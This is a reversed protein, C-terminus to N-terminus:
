ELVDISDETSFRLECSHIARGCDDLHTNFPQLRISAESGTTLLEQHVGIGHHLQSYAAKGAKEEVEWSTRAQRDPVEVRGCSRLGPLCWAIRFVRDLRAGALSEGM